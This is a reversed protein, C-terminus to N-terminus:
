ASLKWITDSLSDEPEVSVFRTRSSPPTTWIRASALHEAALSVRVLTSMVSAPSPSPRNTPQHTPPLLLTIRSQHHLCVQLRTLPPVPLDWFGLPSALPGM